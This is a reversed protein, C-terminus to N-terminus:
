KQGNWHFKTGKYRRLSLSQLAREVTGVGGPICITSGEFGELCSYCWYRVAAGHVGPWESGVATM